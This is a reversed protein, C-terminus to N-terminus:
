SSYAKISKARLHFLPTSRHISSMADKWPTHLSDVEEATAVAPLFLSTASPVFGMGNIELSLIYM